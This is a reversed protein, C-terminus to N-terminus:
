SVGAVWRDQSLSRNMELQRDPWITAWFLLLTPMLLLASMHKANMWWPFFPVVLLMFIAAKLWIPKRANSALVALPIILLVLDYLYVHYTTFITATIAAAFSTKLDLKECRAATWLLISVAILILMWVSPEQGSLSFILGRINPMRSPLFGGDPLSQMTMLLRPYATFQARGSIAACLALMIVSGTVLGFMFRWQRRLLMIFAFPLVFHFKFLGLALGLGAAVPMNAELAALALVFALLLFSDVQGSIFSNQLPYYAISLFLAWWPDAIKITRALIWVAILATGMSLATWVYFATNLDLFVTPWYLLATVAPYNFVAGPGHGFRSEFAHQVFIDYLRTAQGAHVIQAGAYYHEFDWGPNAGMVGVHSFVSWMLLAFVVLV